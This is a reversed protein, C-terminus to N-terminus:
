HLAPSMGGCRAEHFRPHSADYVVVAGSGDVITISHVFDAVAGFRTAKGQLLQCLELLPYGLPCMRRHVPQSIHLMCAVWNIHRRWHPALHDTHQVAANLLQPSGTLGFGMLAHM